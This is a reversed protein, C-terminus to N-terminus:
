NGKEADKQRENEELQITEVTKEKETGKKERRKGRSEKKEKGIKKRGGGTKKLKNQKGRKCM